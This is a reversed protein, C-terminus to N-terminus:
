KGANILGCRRVGRLGFFMIAIYLGFCFGTFADLSNHELQSSLHIWHWREFSSLLIGCIFAINAIIMLRRSKPDLNNNSICM